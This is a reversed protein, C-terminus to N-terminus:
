RGSRRSDTILPELFDFSLRRRWAQLEAHPMGHYRVLPLLTTPVTANEAAVTCPVEREDVPERTFPVSVRPGFVVVNRVGPLSASPVVMTTVQRARLRDALAQCPTYEDGVLDEPRIGLGRAATWTVHVASSLDIRATWLRHRFGALHTASPQERRLYEAWAGFPHLSFYQTTQGVRNFRGESRNGSVRLATIWDAVRFLVSSPM